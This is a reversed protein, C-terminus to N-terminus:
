DSASQFSKAFIVIVIPFNSSKPHDLQRFPFIGVRFRAPSKEPEAPQGGTRGITALSSGSDRGNRCHEFLVITTLIRRIRRESRRQCRPPFEDSNKQSSSPGFLSNADTHMRVDVPWSGNKNHLVHLTHGPAWRKSSGFKRDSVGPM